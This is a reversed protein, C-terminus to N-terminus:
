RDASQRDAIIKSEIPTIGTQGLQLQVVELDDARVLIRHPGLALLWKRFERDARSRQRWDRTTCVWISASAGSAVLEDVDERTASRVREGLYYSAIRDTHSPFFVVRAPQGRSRWLEVFGNVHSRSVVSSQVVTSAAILALVLAAAYWRWRLSKLQEFARGLLILFPPLVLLAFRPPYYIPHYLGSVVIAIAVPGVLLWLAYGLHLSDLPSNPGSGIGPRVISRVLLFAAVVVIGFAALLTLSKWPAPLPVRGWMLERFLIGVGDKIGAASIWILHRQSYLEDRFRLVRAIWPLFAAASVGACVLYGGLSSWRRKGAFYALAFAGQAMLIVAGLYHTYLLLVATIAYAVAWKAWRSMRGEDVVSIMWRWLLWAALTSLAALQSYMRATQAFYVDLPHVVALAIVVLLAGRGGALHRALLALAGLGILSWLVSYARLDWVTHGFFGRWSALGLYYLPPHIDRATFDLIRDVELTSFRASFTEDVFLPERTLGVLRVAGALVATVVILAVIRLVVMESGARSEKAVTEVVEPSLPEQLDNV